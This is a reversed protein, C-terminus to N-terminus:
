RSAADNNGNTKDPKRWLSRWLDYCAMAVVIVVVITLDIEPVFGVLIAMFGILLALAALAIAKDIM